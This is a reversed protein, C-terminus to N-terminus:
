TTVYRNAHTVHETGSFIRGEGADDGEIEVLRAELTALWERYDGASVVVQASASDADTGKSTIVVVKEVRNLYAALITQYAASVQETTWFRRIATLLTDDIM